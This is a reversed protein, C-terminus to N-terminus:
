KNRRQFVSFDLEFDTNLRLSVCCGPEISVESGRLEGRVTAGARIAIPGETVIDGSVIGSVDASHASVNGELSAGPSLALTGAVSVDGSVSGEILLSGQGQVQGHVHTSPGLVSDEANTKKM